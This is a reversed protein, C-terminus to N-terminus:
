PTTLSRSCRTPMMSLLMEQNELADMAMSAAQIALTQRPMGNKVM